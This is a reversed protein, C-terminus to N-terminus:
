KSMFKTWRSLNIKKSAYKEPFVTATRGDKQIQVFIFRGGTNLGKKNFKINEYPMYLDPGPEIDVSAMANRIAERNTSAADEIAQKVVWAGQYLLMIVGDLDGGYKAKFRDNLKRARPSIDREWMSVSLAGWDEKGVASWYAAETKTGAAIWPIDLLGMKKASRTFMIADSVYSADMVADPNGAKLEIMLPDVNPTRSAFSIDPGVSYGAKKLFERRAKAGTQGYDTNEYLLAVKKIKGGVLGNIYDLVEVQNKAVNFAKPEQQFVYHYGRETITDAYSIAALYPTKLREAVSSGAMTCVSPYADMIVSVHEQQILRETESTAFVPKGQSDGWVPVLKAGGLSKIGGSANIDHFAMECVDKQRKGSQALAGSLTLLCGVKVEKVQQASVCEASLFTLIVMSAFVISLKKSVTTLRMTLDEELYVVGPKLWKLLLTRSANPLSPMLRDESHWVNLGNGDDFPKQVSKGDGEKRREHFGRQAAGLFLVAKM